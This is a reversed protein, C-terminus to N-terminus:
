SAGGGNPKPPKPPTYHSYSGGNAEAIRQLAGGAQEKEGFTITHIVSPRTEGVLPDFSTTNAEQLYTEPKSSTLRGDSLIFTADPKMQLVIDLAKELKTPASKEHPHVTQLWKELKQINQKSAPVPRRQPNDLDFMPYPHGSYFIVFFSQAPKMRGIAGLVEDLAARWKYNGRHRMSASRDVV